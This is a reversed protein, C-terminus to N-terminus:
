FGELMIIDSSSITNLDFKVEVTQEFRYSESRENIDEINILLTYNGQPIALRSQHIFADMINSTDSLVPSLLRFRDAAVMASDTHMSITVEIGGIFKGPEQEVYDVSRGNLNFYIELYPESKDDLFQSYSIDLGIDKAHGSFSFILISLLTIIQRYM